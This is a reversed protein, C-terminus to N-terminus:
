DMPGGACGYLSNSGALEHVKYLNDQGPHDSAAAHVAVLQGSFDGLLDAVLRAYTPESPEFAHVMVAVDRARAEGLLRKSWAGVNAGVDFVILPKMGASALVVDQVMWEGNPGLQNPLDRRAYDLLFRSGRVLARRGVIAELAIAVRSKMDIM